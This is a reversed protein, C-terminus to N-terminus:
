PPWESEDDHISGKHEDQNTSVTQLFLTCFTTPFKNTERYKGSKPLHMLIDCRILSTMFNLLPVKKLSKLDWVSIAIGQYNALLRTTSQMLSMEHKELLRDVDYNKLIGFNTM